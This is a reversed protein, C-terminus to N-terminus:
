NGVLNEQRIFAHLKDTRNSRPGPAITIFQLDPPAVIDLDTIRKIGMDYVTGTPTMRRNANQVTLSKSIPKITITQYPDSGGNNGAFVVDNTTYEGSYAMAYQFLTDMRSQNTEEPELNSYSLPPTINKTHALVGDLAKAIAPSIPTLMTDILLLPVFQTDQRPTPKIMPKSPDLPVMSAMQGAIDLDADPTELYYDQPL